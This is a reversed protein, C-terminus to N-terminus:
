LRINRFYQPGFVIDAMHGDNITLFHGDGPYVKGKCITVEQEGLVSVALIQAFRPNEPCQLFNNRSFIEVRIWIWPDVLIVRLYSTMLTVALISKTVVMVIM